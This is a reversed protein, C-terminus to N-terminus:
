HHHDGKFSCEEELTEGEEEEGDDNVLNIVMQVSGQEVTIEAELEGLSHMTNSMMGLASPAFYV